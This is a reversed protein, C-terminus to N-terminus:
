TRESVIVKKLRRWCCLRGKGEGAGYSWQWLKGRDLSCLFKYKTWYTPFIKRNMRRFEAVMQRIGEVLWGLSINFKDELVM